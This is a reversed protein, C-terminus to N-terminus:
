LRSPLRSGNGGRASNPPGASLSAGGLAEAPTPDKNEVLLKVKQGAPVEFSLGDLILRSGFTVGAIVFPDDM